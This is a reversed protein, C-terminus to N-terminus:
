KINVHKDLFKLPAFERGGAEYFKGFFEVFILRDSHVYASLLSLGFNFLQLAIILVVGVTFRAVPPLYAVLINFALAISGGSIGLAMLRSYSVIDGLYGSVGYLDYLGAAFGAAKNKSNIIAIGLIVLAAVGAMYLGIKQLIAQHLVMPGLAAIIFGCLMVIWALGDKIASAKDSKWNLGTHLALGHLIQIFGLGFSLGLVAIVDETPSLVKFPLAAGFFSGYMLGWVIVSYSLIHFFKINKKMGQDMTFFKLPILTGLWLLLGYGLDAMMMGFFIWYYPALSGTPDFGNYKPTGYMKTINEFPAILSPNELKTPVEDMEDEVVDSQSIYIQGPLAEEVNKIIAPAEDKAVWGEIAFLRDSTLSSETAGQRQYLAYLIEEAMELVRYEEQFDALSLREEQAEKRLDEAQQHREKLLNAPLDVFQYDLTQFRNQTLFQNVEYSKDLSTAIVLGIEDRSQYVEEVIIDKNERVANIYENDNTQPLTGIYLKTYKPARHYAPIAHLNQWKSFFDAENNIVQLDSEIKELKEKKAWVKQTVSKIEDFSVQQELEELTMTPLPKMYKEKFGKAKLYSDLFRMASRVDQLQDDLENLRQSTSPRTGDVQNPNIPRVEIKQISQLEKMLRNRNNEEVIASIKVMKAIAM